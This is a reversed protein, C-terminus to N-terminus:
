KGIDFGYAVFCVLTTFRQLVVMFASYGEGGTCWHLRLCGDERMKKIKKESKEERELQKFIKDLDLCILQLM